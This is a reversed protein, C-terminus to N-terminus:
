VFARPEFMSIAAAFAAAPSVAAPDFDLVYEDADVKGFQVVVRRAPAGRRRRRAAPPPVHALEPEAEGAEGRRGARALLRAVFSPQRAPGPAPLPPPPPPPAAVLQFNKVSALKVRGRFNLCWCRLAANWHPAKNILAAPPTPPPTAPAAPAPATASRRRRAPAAPAARPPAAAWAPAPALALALRAPRMFGRLRTVHDVTALRASPLPSPPPARRASGGAGSAEGGETATRRGKASGDWTLVGREAGAVGLPATRPRAALGFRATAWGRRLSAAPLGACAADYHLTSTRGAGLRAALLLKGDGRPSAAAPPAAGGGRPPAPDLRLALM